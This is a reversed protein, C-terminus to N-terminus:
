KNEDNSDQVSNDSDDENLVNTAIYECMQEFNMGTLILAQLDLPLKSMDIKGM